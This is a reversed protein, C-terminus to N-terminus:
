PLVWPRSSPGFTIISFYFPVQEWHDVYLLLTSRLLSLSAPHSPYDLQAPSVAKCRSWRSFPLRHLPAPCSLAVGLWVPVSEFPLRSAVLCAPPRACTVRQIADVVAVQVAAGVAIVGSAARPCPLFPAHPPHLVAVLAHPLPQQRACNTWPTWITPNLIPM